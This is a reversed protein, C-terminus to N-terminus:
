YNAVLFCKRVIICVRYVTTAQVGLSLLLMCSRAPQLEGTSAQQPKADADAMDVDVAAAAGPQTVPVSAGGVAGASCM